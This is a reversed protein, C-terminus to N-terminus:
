LLWDILLGFCCSRPIIPTSIVLVHVGQRLIRGRLWAVVEFFRVLHNELAHGSRSGTHKADNLSTGLRTGCTRSIPTSVPQQWFRAPEQRYDQTISFLIWADQGDCKTGLHERQICWKSGVTPHDSKLTSNKWVKKINRNYFTLSGVGQRPGMQPLLPVWKYHAHLIYITSDFLNVICAPPSSRVLFYNYM